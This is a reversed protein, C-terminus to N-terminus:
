AVSSIRIFAQLLSRPGLTHKIGVLFSYCMNDFIHSIKLQRLTSSRFARLRFSHYVFPM